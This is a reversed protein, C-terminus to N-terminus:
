CNEGENGDSQKSLLDKLVSVIKSNEASETEDSEPKPVRLQTMRRRSGSASLRRRVYTQKSSAASKNFIRRNIKPTVINNENPDIASSSCLSLSLLESQSLPRLDITPIAETTLPRDTIDDSAAM